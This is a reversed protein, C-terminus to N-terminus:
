VALLKSVSSGTWESTLIKLNRGPSDWFEQVAGNTLRAYDGNRRAFFGIQTGGAVTWASFFMWSNLAWSHGKLWFFFLSFFVLGFFYTGPLWGKGFTSYM